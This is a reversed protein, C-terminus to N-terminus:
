RQKVRSPRGIRTAIHRVNLGTVPDRWDGAIMALPGTVFRRGQWHPHPISLAPSQWLGGSWLIIDLDLVRGGWRQGRRRGFAREIQKFLSLLDLPSLATSILAAANAYRRQSPGLPASQQTSSAAYLVVDNAQLYAMAAALISEPRGFRGHPRNSGLAIAYLHNPSIPLSNM